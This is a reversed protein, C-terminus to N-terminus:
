TQSEKKKLEINRKLLEGLNIINITVKLSMSEFLVYESYGVM